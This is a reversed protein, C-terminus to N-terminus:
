LAKGRAKYYEIWRGQDQSLSRVKSPTEVCAAWKQEAVSWQGLLFGAILLCLWGIYKDAKM